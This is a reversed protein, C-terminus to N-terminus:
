ITNTPFTIATGSHALMMFPMFVGRSQTVSASHSSISNPVEPNEKMFNAVTQCRVQVAPSSKM